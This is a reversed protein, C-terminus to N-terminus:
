CDTPDRFGAQRLESYLQQAMHDAQQVRKKPDKDLCNDILNALGNPLSPVLSAIAPAPDYLVRMVTGSTTKAFLPPRGSVAYFLSAGLGYIDAAVSVAATDEIQEPAMFAPSGLATGPATLRRGSNEDISDVLQRALGLDALIGRGSRAVLINAPKLDRHIINLQHVHHLASAVDAIISAAITWKLKSKKRVLDSLPAGDIYDMVIFSLGEETTGWTRVSVVSPHKIQFCLRAEREFRENLAPMGSAIPSLVKVAVHRSPQENTAALYVAGIGGRGLLRLLTCGGIVRNLLEDAM